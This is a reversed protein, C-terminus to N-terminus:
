ATAAEDNRRAAEMLLSMVSLQISREPYQECPGAVFTGQKWTMLKYFAEEARCGGAEADIIDGERIYIAGKDDGSAFTVRASKGSACLIQVLDSLVIHQLSGSVGSQQPKPGSAGVIKQLKIFVLEIDVPKGLVDEAGAKMCERYVRQSKSSTLIIVPVHKMKPDSKVIRCLSVGDEILMDKEVIIVDPIQTSLALTAEQVNGAVQVAYGKAKLPLSLTASVVEDPDVVLVRAGPTEMSQLFAEDSLVLAFKSLVTQRLHTRAWSLRLERRIHDAGKAEPHEKKFQQYTAVLDLIERGLFQGDEVITDDRPGLIAGLDYQRTWDEVLQRSNDLGSLWAALVIKHVELVPLRMRGALLQAYRAKEAIGAVVDVDKVCAHVMARVVVMAGDTDGTKLKDAFDNNSM